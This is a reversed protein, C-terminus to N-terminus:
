ADGVQVDQHSGPVAVLVLFADQAALLTVRRVPHHCGEVGRQVFNKALMSKTARSWELARTNNPNIALVNNLFVLLEEPYESISAMWLWANENKPDAETVQLLQQRAAARNGEQAAKIGAQLMESVDAPRNDSHASGATSNDVAFPVTSTNSEFELKM